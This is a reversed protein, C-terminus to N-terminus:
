SKDQSLWKNEVYEKEEDTLHYAKDLFNMAIDYTHGSLPMYEDKFKNFYDQMKWTKVRVERVRDWIEDSIWQAEDIMKKYEKYEKEYKEEDKKNAKVSDKIKNYTTESYVKKSILETPEKDRSYQDIKNTFYQNSSDTVNYNYDVRGFSTCKEIVEIITKLEDLSSFYLKGVSDFLGITYVTMEPKPIEMLFPKIPVDLFKIGEEAKRYMIMENIQDDTLDFIEQETLENIKKM